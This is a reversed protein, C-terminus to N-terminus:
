MWKIYNMRSHHLHLTKNYYIGEEQTYGKAVLRAKNRIDIGVEDLKNKFV